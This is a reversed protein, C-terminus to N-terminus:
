EAGAFHDFGRGVSVPAGDAGIWVVGEGAVVEGIVTVRTGTAARIEEAAAPECTFLLEYDEGGSVALALPDTGIGAALPECSDDIPIQALWVRAGVASSACLRPLDDALGDSLDMMASARRSAAIARGEALRPVPQRHARLARVVQPDPDGALGQRLAALGAASAGLAGTVAIAEGPRAGSRCLLLREEAFGTVAVDVVIPGRSGVLDGGVLVAGFNSACSILGRAIGEVVERDADGPAAVSSVAFGPEGGMAAIDSLNQAMAKWGIQEPTAWARRFHIEEVMMDCTLLLLRGDALRMVAADDGPGVLVQDNLAAAALDRFRTLLSDEGVERLRTRGTGSM